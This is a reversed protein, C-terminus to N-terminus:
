RLKVAISNRTRGGEGKLSIFRVEYQANAIALVFQGEASSENDWSQEFEQPLILWVGEGNLHLIPHHILSETWLFHKDQDPKHGVMCRPYLVETLLRVIMKRHNSDVVRNGAWESPMIRRVRKSLNPNRLLYQFLNSAQGVISVQGGIQRARDLTRKWFEDNSVRPRRPSFIVVKDGDVPRFGELVLREELKVRALPDIGEYVYVIRENPSDWTFDPAGHVVSGDNTFCGGNICIIVVKYQKRQKASTREYAM